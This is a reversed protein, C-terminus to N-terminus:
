ITKAVCRHLFRNSCFCLALSYGILFVILDRDFGRLSPTATYPYTPNAGGIAINLELSLLHM